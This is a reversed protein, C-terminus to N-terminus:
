QAALADGTRAALIGLWERLAIQSNKLGGANPLWPLIGDQIPPAYRTPAPVVVLGQNEFLAQARRMHWAHTVLVIRTVGAQKLIPALFAANERTDLSAAEVWRAAVRFDTELVERMSEAEPTGGMPAGGTVGIPLGTQRALRAGYRLRELGVESVTDGDYEPPNRYSGGGLIIIAESKAIQEPAPPPTDYLSRLLENGIWPTSLLLLTGLGLAVLFHGTRPRHRSLWLGAAALLLPGTPPLILAALIKKLLFM